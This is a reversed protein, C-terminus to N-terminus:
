RPRAPDATPEVREYALVATSAWIRTEVSHALRYRGRFWEAALLAEPFMEDLAVVYDPQMVRILEPPISGRGREGLDPPLPYFRISQPSVLGCVDLVRARSAYGFAGIENLAVVSDPRLRPALARAIAAYADERVTFVGAPTLPSQGPARWGGLGLATWAVLALVAAHTTPPPRRRAVRRVAAVIATLYFPVMPVLYWEWVPTSRLGALSYVTALGPAFAALPWWRPRERIFGHFARRSLFAASLWTLGLGAGVAALWDGILMQSNLGPMGTQRIVVRLNYSPDISSITAKAVLSQPVPSGFWWIAFGIWPALTLAYAALFRRRPARTVVLDRGVVLAAVLLGEPRTLTALGALLGSTARRGAGDAVLAGLVWLVFLSSEMGSVAYYIGFPNVAFLLGLLLAWRGLELRAGLRCLLATTVADALGSLVLSVRPLDDLGLGYSGALLLSWLPTTTGLVREGANYVFGLGEALNRSYRFTIYADDITYPGVSLRALFAALALAVPAACEVSLTTGASAPRVAKTASANLGSEEGGVLLPKCGM